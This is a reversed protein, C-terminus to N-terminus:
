FFYRVKAKALYDNVLDELTKKQVWVGTLYVHTGDEAEKRDTVRLIAFENDSELVGTREGTAVQTLEVWDSPLTSLLRDGLDVEPITGPHALEEEIQAKAEAQLSPDSSVFEGMELALVISSVIRKKFEEKTWGFADNLQQIFAEESEEAAVVKQYFQEMREQDLKVGNQAALKRIILKNVLADLITQRITSEEPMEEEGTSELYKVLAEHENAYENLSILSGNVMVAPFPIFSIVTRTFPHTVPLRYVGLTILGLLAVFALVLVVPRPIQPNKKGQHLEDTPAPDVSLSESIEPKDIMMFYKIQQLCNQSLLLVVM